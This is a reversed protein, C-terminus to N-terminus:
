GESTPWSGGNGFPSRAIGCFLPTVPVFVIPLPSFRVGNWQRGAPFPASLGSEKCLVTRGMRGPLVKNVWKVPSSVSAYHPSTVPGLGQTESPRNETGLWSEQRQMEWPPDHPPFQHPCVQVSSLGRSAWPAPAAAPLRFALLSLDAPAGPREPYRGTM